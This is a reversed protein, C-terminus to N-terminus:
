QVAITVTNQLSSIGGVTLTVYQNGSSLGQPIQVNVQCVGTVLGPAAGIFLVKGFLPSSSPGFGVAVPATVELLTSSPSVSGDTGPPSTVGCGTAYLVIISGAPEPAFSGGSPGNYTGNQNLAAAPGSGTSNATYIAPAEGAVGVQLAASANGNYTVVINVTPQGNIEWPAIVNIQTASVYLPTGPTGNFTVGVGGLTSNVGGSSNLSFSVPTAPGLLTGKITVLEGPAIVGAVNSANNSVFTPQPNPPQTVTLTVNVTLPTSLQASSITVTGSYATGAASGTLGSPTVSVNVTKTYPSASGATSGSTTDVSLWGSGSTVTTGVTFQVSGGTSTIVIPQSAPTMGGTTYAFSLSTPAVSVSIAPAVTITVPITPGTNAANVYTLAIQCSYSGAVVNTSSVSVQIAGSATGSAPSLTLFNSPCTASSAVAATYSATGGSSSLTINQPTVAATQGATFSFTLSAPSATVTVNPAVVLTVPIVFQNNTTPLSSSTITITGSYTGAQLGSPNIYVVLNAPTTYNDGALNTYLWGLGGSQYGVNFNVPVGTSGLQIAQSSPSTGNQQMTFIGFGAQQQITIVPTNTAIAVTVPVNVSVSSGAPTISITGSCTGATMGAAAVSIQLTAPTTTGSFNSVSLWNNGNCNSGATESVAYTFSTNAGGSAVVQITQSGPVAQTTEYSFLLTSPGVTLQAANSVTVTVNITETYNDGNTPTVVITGTSTGVPLSGSNISVTLTAPTASSSSTVSLWSADASAVSTTFGVSGGSGTTTLNVTQSAPSQGAFSANFALTTPSLQLLPHSGVVLSVPIATLSGQGFPTIILNTTYTGVTQPPSVISLVISAPSNLVTSGSFSSLQLWTVSPSMAISFGLTSSSNSSVQLTQATPITQGIQYLFTFATPSPTVTNGSTVTLTVSISTTNGASDSVSITGSYTSAALGPLVTTSISVPIATSNEVCGATLGGNVLLWSGGSTTSASMTCSLSAASNLIQVNSSTPSSGTSGAVASFSLTNPSASMTGTSGSGATVVLSVQITAACTNTSAYCVTFLLTQEFGNSLGTTDVAVSFTEGAIPVGALQSNQNSGNVYLWNGPTQLTFQVNAPGNSPLVTPSQQYSLVTHSTNAPVTFTLATVNAGNEQVAITQGTATDSLCLFGLLPLISLASFKMLHM